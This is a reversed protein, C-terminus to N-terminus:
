PKDPTGRLHSTIVTELEADSIPATLESISTGLWVRRYYDRWEQTQKLRMELAYIKEADRALLSEHVYRVGHKPITKYNVWEGNTILGSDEEVGIAWIEDPMKESM